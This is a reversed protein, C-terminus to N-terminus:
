MLKECDDTKLGGVERKATLPFAEEYGFLDAKEKLPPVGACDGVHVRM